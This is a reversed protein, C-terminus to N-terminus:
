GTKYSLKLMYSPTSYIVTKHLGTCQRHLPYVLSLKRQYRLVIMHSKFRIYQFNRSIPFEKQGPKGPCRKSYSWKPAKCFEIGSVWHRSHKWTMFPLFNTVIRVFMTVKERHSFSYCIVDIFRDRVSLFLSPSAPTYAAFSSSSINLTSVKFTIHTQYRSKDKKM